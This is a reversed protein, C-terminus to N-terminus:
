GTRGWIEAGNTGLEITGSGTNELKSGSAGFMAVSNEGNGNAANMVIKGSNRAEAFDVAIATANKKSFDITGNNEVKVDASDASGSYNAQAIAQSVAATDTGRVTKGTDVRVSSNLFDVRYYKDIPNSADGTHNDLDVDTDIALSAKTAKYAKFSPSSSDDISVHRGLFDNIRRIDVSSLDIYDANPATNDLIFLTSNKDLKLNVKKDSVSGTFMEDLKESTQGVADGPVTDKFYFATAGDTLNGKVNNNLKFIGKANNTGSTYNYFLLTGTDKANLTVTNDNASDGLEVTTRDAFLGLAKKEATITGKIIKTETTTVTDSGKAYLSISEEGSASISVDTMEFIGENNYVGTVKIGNMEINGTNKGSSNKDNIVMGITEVSGSDGNKILSNNVIEAGNQSLIGIANRDQAWFSIEGNTSNVAIAKHGGAESQNAVMGINGTGCTIAIKGKNVAEPTLTGSNDDTAVKGLEVRMGINKTDRVDILAGTENTIDDDAKINTKSYFTYWM